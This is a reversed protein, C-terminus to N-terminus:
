QMKKLDQIFEECAYDVSKKTVLDDDFLSEQLSKM